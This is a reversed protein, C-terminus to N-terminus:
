PCGANFNVVCASFEAASVLDDGNTDAPCAAPQTTVFDSSNSISLNFEGKLRASFFLECSSGLWLFPSNLDNYLALDPKDDADIDFPVRDDIVVDAPGHVPDLLILYRNSTTFIAVALDGAANLAYGSTRDFREVPLGGPVADNEKFYLQGNGVLYSEGLPPPM